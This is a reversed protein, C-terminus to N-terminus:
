REVHHRHWGHQRLERMAQRLRAEAFVNFMRLLWQYSAHLKAAVIAVLPVTQLMLFTMTKEPEQQPSVGLLFPALREVRATLTNITGYSNSLSQAATEYIRCLSRVNALPRSRKTTGKTTKRQRALPPWVTAPKPETARSILARRPPVRGSRTPIM